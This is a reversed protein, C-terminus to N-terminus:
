YIPYEILFIVGLVFIIRRMFFLICVLIAGPKPHKLDVM